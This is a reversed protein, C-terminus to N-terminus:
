FLTWSFDYMGNAQDTIQKIITAKFSENLRKANGEVELQQAIYNEVDESRALIEIRTLDKFDVDPFQVHPRHTVFVRIGANYMRRILHSRVIGQQNCEDFADFFVIFSAPTAHTVFLDVFSSLNPRPSGSKFEDYM